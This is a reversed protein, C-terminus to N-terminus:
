GANSQEGNPAHVPSDDQSPVENGGQRTEMGQANYRKSYEVADSPAPRINRALYDDLWNDLNTSVMVLGDRLHLTGGPAAGTSRLKRYRQADKVWPKVLLDIGDRVKQEFLIPDVSPSNYGGYGVYFALSRLADEATYEADPISAPVLSVAQQSSGCSSLGGPREIDNQM